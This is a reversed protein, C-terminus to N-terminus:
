LETLKLSDEILDGIDHIFFNKIVNTNEYNGRIVKYIPKLSLDGVPTKMVLTMKNVQYNFFPFKNVEEILTDYISETKTTNLSNVYEELKQVNSSKTDYEYLSLLPLRVGYKSYNSKNIEDQIDVIVKLSQEMSNTNNLYKKSIDSSSFDKTIAQKIFILQIVSFKELIRFFKRVANRLIEGGTEAEYKLQCELLLDHLPQFLVNHHVKIGHKALEACCPYEEPDVGDKNDNKVTGKLAKKDKNQKLNMKEIDVLTLDIHCRTMPNCFKYYEDVPLIFNEFYERSHENLYNQWKMNNHINKEREQIVTKLGKKLSKRYIYLEEFTETPLKSLKQKLNVLDKKHIFNLCNNKPPQIIFLGQILKKEKALLKIKRIYARLYILYYIIFLKDNGWVQNSLEKGFFVNITNIYTSIDMVQWGSIRQRFFSIVVKKIKRGPYKSELIKDLKKIRDKNIKTSFNLDIILEPVETKDSVVVAIQVCDDQDEIIQNVKINKYEIDVGFKNESFSSYSSIIFNLFASHITNEGAIFAQKFDLFEPYEYIQIGQINKFIINHDRGVEIIKEHGGTGKLVTKFFQSVEYEDNIYAPKLVRLRSYGSDISSTNLVFTKKDEGAFDSVLYNKILAGKSIPSEPISIINECTSCKITKETIDTVTHVTKCKPCPFKLEKMNDSFFKKIPAEWNMKNFNKANKVMGAGGIIDSENRL